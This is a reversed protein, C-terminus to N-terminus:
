TSLAAPLCTPRHRCQSGRGVQAPLRTGQPHVAAAEIRPEPTNSGARAATLGGALGIASGATCSGTRHAVPWAVHAAPAGPLTQKNQVAAAPLSGFHLPLTCLSHLQLATCPSLIPHVVGGHRVCYSIFNQMIVAGAEGGQSRARAGATLEQKQSRSQQM